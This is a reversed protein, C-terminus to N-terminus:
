DTANQSLAERLQYRQIVVVALYGVAMISHALPFSFHPDFIPILLGILILSIALGFCYYRERTKLANLVLIFIFTLIYSLSAAYLAVSRAIGITPGCFAVLVYGCAACIVAFYVTISLTVQLKIEHSLDTFRRSQFFLGFLCLVMFVAFPVVQLWSSDFILSLFAAILAAVSLLISFVLIGSGFYLHLGMARQMIALDGQIRGLQGDSISQEDSM